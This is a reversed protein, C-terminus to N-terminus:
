WHQRIEQIYGQPLHIYGKNLCAFQLASSVIKNNGNLLIGQVNLLIYVDFHKRM